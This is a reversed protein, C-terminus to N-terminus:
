HSAFVAVRGKPRGRLATEIEAPTAGRVRVSGEVVKATLGAARLVRAVARPPGKVTAVPARAANLGEQASGAAAPASEATAAQAAVAAEGAERKGRENGGGTTTVIIAVAAATVAVPALIAAIRRPSWALTRGGSRRREQVPLDGVMGQWREDPLELLPSARLVARGREADAVAAACDACDELHTRVAAAATEDLEGDAYELLEVDSPHSGAMM